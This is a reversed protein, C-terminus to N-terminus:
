HEGRKRPAPPNTRPDTHEGIKRERAVVQKIKEIVCGGNALVDADTFRLVNLGHARLYNDRSLDYKHAEPVAHTEGDVEIILDVASAYFDVIFPGIPHQRRFSVGFQAGRLAQWLAKEAKTPDRRMDRAFQWHTKPIDEWHFKRSPM